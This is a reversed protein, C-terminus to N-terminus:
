KLDKNAEMDFWMAFLTFQSTSMFSFFAALANISPITEGLYLWFYFLRIFLVITAVAFIFGFFYFFVLPHFDRIVYKEKLRWLFQKLLLWSMTFIVKSIRIGSNEGIGYLPEVAVDRVRAHAVNLLIMRHNPYGYRDYMREWPIYKLVSTRGATFGTQFDAVHWYGSSVKTILSLLANGLFRVRPIDQWAKGSAFRNGKTFDANDNVIPELLKSMDDPSMQGDGDVTLIIDSSINDFCWRYGSKVAAGAGQNEEHQILHINAISRCSKKQIIEGTNDSSADNILVIDDIFDPLSDIVDGIQSAENYAPVVVAIRYGKYM